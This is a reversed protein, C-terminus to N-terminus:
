SSEIGNIRFFHRFPPVEYRALRRLADLRSAFERLM